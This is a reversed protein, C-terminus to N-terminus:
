TDEDKGAEPTTPMSDYRAPAAGFGTPAMNQEAAGVDGYPWEAPGGDDPNLTRRSRRPRAILKLSKLFDGIM